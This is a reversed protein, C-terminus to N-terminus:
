HTDPPTRTRPHRARLHARANARMLSWAMGVLLIVGGILVAWLWGQRAGSPDALPSTKVPAATAAAEAAAAGGGVVSAVEAQPLKDVAGPQYGPIVSALPLFKNRALERGAALVFPGEGSTVFVLNVPAFWATLEPAQSFAGGRADAEIRWERWSAAGLELPPNRRLQGEHQLAVVVQRSVPAWPEQPRQRAYLDVPVLTNPAVARIELAALPTAFPVRFELANADKAAREPLALPASVRRGPLQERASELRAAAVRVDTDTGWDIRLYRGKLSVGGNIVLRAPTVLQQDFRYVTVEGLRQWQRLDTSGHVRFTVPRAEPWTAELDIAAIRPEVARTDILAGIPAPPVPPRPPDASAAAPPMDLRVVPGAAGPEIRLALGGSATQAAAVADPAGLIPLAPLRLTEAAALQPPDGSRDLALPVSLGQANFVRLDRLDAHQLRTLVDASLPLRVLSAGAPLAITWRAAYDASQDSSPLADEARVVNPVPRPQAGALPPALALLALLTFSIRKM